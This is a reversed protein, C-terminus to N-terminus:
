ALFFWFTLVSRVDRLQRSLDSVTNQHECGTTNGVPIDLAHLAPFQQSVSAAVSMKERVEM